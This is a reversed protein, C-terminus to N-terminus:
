RSAGSLAQMDTSPRLATDAIAATADRRRYDAERRLAIGYAAVSVALLLWLQKSYLATSFVLAALQGLLGCLLARCLLDMSRDGLRGFIRAAELLSRLAFGVVALFLAFGITGLEALVQLYVNHAAKPRDVINESRTLGGPELLYHITSNAYNDAGVGAIPKDEVIRWGVRWIDTRGSGTADGDSIRALQAPAVTVLYSAAGGVALAILAVVAARRGKGVFLPAICTAALLGVVAGRSATTLLAVLALAAAGFAAARAVAPIDRCAGFGLSVAVAVILLLGLENANVGSGELRAVADASPAGTVLGLAASLLAGVVFLALV